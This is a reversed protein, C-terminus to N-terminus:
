LALDAGLERWRAANVRHDGGSALSASLVQLRRGNRDSRHHKHGFGALAIVTRKWTPLHGWGRSETLGVFPMFSAWTVRCGFWRLVVAHGVENLLLLPVIPGVIVGWGKARLLMAFIVLPLGVITLVVVLTLVITSRHSEEGQIPRMEEFVAEDDGGNQM